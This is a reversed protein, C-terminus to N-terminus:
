PNKKVFVINDSELEKNKLYNSINTVEHLKGQQDILHPAFGLSKLVQEAKQHETNGRELSLYEMIVYPAHATLHKKFSHIVKLEAGEVDIKVVRPIFPNQDFFDDLTISEVTVEKPTYASFWKEKKFQDVNLANYESYLNPFEYFSLFGTSDSIALNFVLLNNLGASNKKLIRYTAPSAEFALVKGSGGTLQSALLSFYGYHAGVDVFVDHENLTAILFKALRIESFHTKGGTLYIDTSSPLLVHMRTKFFTTCIAEKEKKTRQYVLERFLIATMYKVPHALMRKLKSASALREVTEIGSFFAEKVM